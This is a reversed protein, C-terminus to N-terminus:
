KRETARDTSPPLSEESVVDALGAELMRRLLKVGRRKGDVVDPSLEKLTLDAVCVRYGPKARDTYWGVSVTFHGGFRKTYIGYHETWGDADTTSRIDPFSPMTVEGTEPDYEAGDTGRM